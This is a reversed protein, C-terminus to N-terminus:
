EAVDPRRLLFQITMLQSCKANAINENTFVEDSMLEDLAEEVQGPSIYKLIGQTGADIFDNIKPQHLNVRAARRISEGSDKYHLCLEKVHKEFVHWNHGTLMVAASKTTSTSHIM